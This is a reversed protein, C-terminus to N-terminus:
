LTLFADGLCVEWFDFIKLAWFPPSKKVLFEKVVFGGTGVLWRDSGRGRRTRWRRTSGDAHYRSLSPSFFSCSVLFPPPSFLFSFVYVCLAFLGVFFVSLLLRPSLFRSRHFSGGGLFFFSSGFPMLRGHFHRTCRLFDHWFDTSFIPCLSVM